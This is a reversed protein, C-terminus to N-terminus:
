SNLTQLKIFAKWHVKYDKRYFPSSVTKTNSILKAHLFGEENDNWLYTKSIHFQLDKYKEEVYQHASEYTKFVRTIPEIITATSTSYNLLTVTYLKM